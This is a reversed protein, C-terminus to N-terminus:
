RAGVEIAQITVPAVYGGIYICLYYSAVAAVEFNRTAGIAIPGYNTGAAPVVYVKQRPDPILQVYVTGIVVTPNEIIVNITRAGNLPWGSGEPMVPLINQPAAGAFTRALLRIYNCYM